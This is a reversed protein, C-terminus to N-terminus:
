RRSGGEQIELPQPKQAAHPHSGGAYLKLKKILRRGLRNHPLMGWVAARLARTPHRGLQERLSISKLGGPYGSHRYYMKEDLKRGTVRVKEANIVVVYDGLDLHPSFDPRHKGRLIPAIQSALRGLTRGEADVLWWQQEIDGASVAHTRM